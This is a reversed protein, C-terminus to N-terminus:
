LAAGDTYRHAPDKALCIDIVEATPKSVDNRRARVPKHSDEITAWMTKMPTDGSFPAEGCLLAYLTAGLGFVDAPKAGKRSDVIQEPAMYGPTGLCSESNTVSHESENVRALGLDGLKAARYDNNKTNPLLPVLINDPKVDRHIVNAAHADALGKCAAICIDLAVTEELGKARHLARRPRNRAASKGPVFDMVLYSLKGEQAVDTVRVLHDSRINAAIRAERFFRKVLLPNTQALHFPLIKVAVEHALGRHVGYYVAGMGGQGIKAFLPIGGLAPVLKGAVTIRPANAIFEDNLLNQRPVAM